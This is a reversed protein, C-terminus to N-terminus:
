YCYVCHTICMSYSIFECADLQNNRQDPTVPGLLEAKCTLLHWLDGCRKVKKKKKGARSSSFCVIVRRGTKLLRDNFSANILPLREMLLRSEFSGYIWSHTHIQAHMHMMLTDTQVHRSTFFFDCVDHTHIYLIIMVVVYQHFAHLRSAM